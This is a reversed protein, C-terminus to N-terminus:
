SLIMIVEVANDLAQMVINAHVTWNYHLTFFYFVICVCIWM